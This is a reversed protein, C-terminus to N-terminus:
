LLRTTYASTRWAAASAAVVYRLLMTVVSSRSEAHSVHPDSQLVNANSLSIRGGPTHQLDVKGNRRLTPTQTSEM